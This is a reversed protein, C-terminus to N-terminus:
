IIQVNRRAFTESCVNNYILWFLSYLGNDKSQITRTHQDLQSVLEPEHIRM